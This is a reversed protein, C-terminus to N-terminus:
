TAAHHRDKWWKDFKEDNVMALAALVTVLIGVIVANAALDRHASFRLVWPSIIMWVGLAINIGEEWVRPMSVAVAAFVVIAVGLIYANWMAASVEMSGRIAWPSVFLWAGIVLNLVDQWRKSATM